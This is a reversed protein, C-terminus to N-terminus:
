NAWEVYFITTSRRRLYITELDEVHARVLNQIADRRLKAVGRAMVVRKRSAAATAAEARMEAVGDIALGM